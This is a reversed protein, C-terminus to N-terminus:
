GCTLERQSNLTYLQRALLLTPIEDYEAFELTM